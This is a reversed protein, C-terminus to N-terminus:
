QGMCFGPAYSVMQPKSDYRRRDKDQARLSHASPSAITVRAQWRQHVLFDNSLITAILTTESQCCTLTKNFRKLGNTQPHYGNRFFCLDVLSSVLRSRFVAGRDTIIVRSSWAQSCNRQRLYSSIKTLKPQRCPKMDHQTIWHLSNDM